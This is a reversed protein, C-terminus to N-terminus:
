SGSGFSSNGTVPLGRYIRKRDIRNETLVTVFM